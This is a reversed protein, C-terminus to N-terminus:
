QWGWRAWLVALAVTPAIEARLTRPGLSLSVAGAARARAVEADTWGGEPGVFLMAAVPRDTGVSVLAPPAEHEPEVCMVRLGATADGILDDFSRVEDVVPIVARGCQAASSAAIRAFREPAVRRAAAPLAVHSSVCPAIRHVGLATADRVITSMQDGKLLGVALTVRVPPEPTAALPELLEVVVQRRDVTHVRARWQGGHGDFVLVETGAPLRLVQRVHHAEAEPLTVRDGSAGPVYCRHRKM